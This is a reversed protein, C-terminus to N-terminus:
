ELIERFRKILLEIENTNKILTTPKKKVIKKSKVVSFFGKILKLSDEKPKVLVKEKLDNLKNKVKMQKKPTEKPTKVEESHGDNGLNKCLRILRNRQEGDYYRGDQHYNIMLKGREFEEM